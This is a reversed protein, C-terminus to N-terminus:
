LMMRSRDGFSTALCILVTEGFYPGGPACVLNMIVLEWGLWLPSALLGERWKLFANQSYSLFGM